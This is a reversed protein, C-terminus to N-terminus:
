RRSQQAERRAFIALFLVCPIVALLEPVVPSLYLINNSPMSTAELFSLLGVRMVIAAFLSAALVHGPHLSRRRLSAIVLFLWLAVSAPFLIPTILRQARSLQTAPNQRVGHPGTWEDTVARNGTLRNFYEIQEPTGVSPNAKPDLDGLTVLTSYVKRASELTQEFYSSHWPPIMTARYGRCAIAKRECAENIERALRRYFEQAETASRYHGAVTVSQRLAWMFWGALIEPCQTRGMQECSVQRWAAGGAGEFFPQLERAAPSVSYARERADKPFLVLREWHDHEIRSLAGYAGEFDASRFDNNRFVGYVWWNAANVSCVVLLFSVFPILLVKGATVPTRIRHAIWYGVIIAVSPVLWLGEERTLWFAAGALGFAVLWPWRAELLFARAGLALVLLSLTGYLNERVVRGGVAGLWLTPNFALFLFCVLTAARSGLLRGLVWSFFLAAGLYAAHETLKLPLGAVHNLWVFASFAAGKAHTFESYPGLWDLRGMSEAMRLFLLDDHEANGLATVGFASRLWLSVLFVAALAAAHFRPIAV